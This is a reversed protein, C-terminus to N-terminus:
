GFYKKMEKDSLGFYSKISSLMYGRRNTIYKKLKECSEEWEDLTSNWRQQNRKMEPKILKYLENYRNLVNEDSWVNKMNFSLRELFKEKFKKNRFLAKILSNDYHNEGLGESSLLWNLYNYDYNYFGYDFDYFIMKIKGSDLSKNNFFRTNVIDNNTTYLEGILYDIFNDIDLHKDVYDYFSDTTADNNRVYNILNRYDTISGSTINNDIRVINTNSDVNYHHSIFEEDVKERLFYVGWYNGNIYLIVPKYAQVDVSGYDDMISTALEDRFMTGTSDQSGSRVVITDYSVAERNEFVKYNLQKPGYKSSFKLSFSKKPIFRTQGGFLKIGCDISFSNDKEYLEAHASYTGTSSGNYLQNFSSNPLSISLVPLTHGENIFYTGTIVSSIKKGEQFAVAKVVTTKNLVIPSNYVKSNKNPISGDLTYYITGLGNLALTVKDDHVGPKVDFSPTYSIEIIGKTDNKKGPTPSEYYYLGSSIGRGYSYGIPVESIFMYDVLKDNKYLYLGETSSLKFNTHIYKSNSYETNGSAMLIYYEHSKLKVDPLSYMNKLDSDTTITYDSLNITDDTNNYLEIWDYYENGNQALYKDNHNMVENIILDEKNKRKKSNFDKVGDITNPYGPSIFISEIFKEDEKVYAYGSTIDKYEVLELISGKGSLIVIGSKKNLSFDSSINESSILYVESPKLKVEPLRWKFPINIDNSLFYENLNITEDSTNQIEVYENFEDLITIVGKNKPLIENISLESKDSKLSNLYEERGSTNNSFGPTIDSTTIWKGESNRAMVSNKNIKIVEVSDVVKGKPSKLTITEKNNKNISFNTHLKDISNGSLFVVLYGKDKITVDTFKWKVKGTSDDSLGYDLLNIDHGTGNYLEIWDYTNGYEDVYAGENSSMVENIVLANFNIDEDELNEDNYKKPKEDITSMVILFISLIILVLIYKINNKFSEFNFVMKM